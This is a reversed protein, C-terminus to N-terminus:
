HKFNRAQGPYEMAALGSQWNCTAPVSRRVACQAYETAELELIILAECCIGCSFSNKRM